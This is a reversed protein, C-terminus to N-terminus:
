PTSEFDKLYAHHYTLLLQLALNDSIQFYFLLNNVSITHLHIANALGLLQKESFSEVTWRKTLGTSQQISFQLVSWSRPIYCNHRSGAVSLSFGSRFGLTFHIHHPVLLSQFSIPEGLAARRTASWFFGRGLCVKGEAWRREKVRRPTMGLTKRTWLKESADKWGWSACDPSVREM